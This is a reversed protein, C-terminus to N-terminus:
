WAAWLATMRGVFSEGEGDGGLRWEMGLWYGCRDRMSKHALQGLVSLAAALDTVAARCESYVPWQRLSKPLGRAAEQYTAVKDTITAIAVVVDAWPTAAFAATDDVVSCYLGYLRGLAAVDAQLRDLGPHCTLPLGFLAEGAGLDAWKNRRTQPAPRIPCHPAMPPQPSHAGRGGEGVRCGM